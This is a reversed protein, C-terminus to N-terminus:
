LNEIINELEIFNESNMDIDYSSHEVNADGLIFDYYRKLHPENNYEENIPNLYFIKVDKHSFFANLISSGVFCAIVLANYSFRLQELFNFDEMNIVHYGNKEFVKEVNKEKTNDINIININKRVSFNKRSIFIKKPYNDQKLNLNNNIYDNIYKLRYQSNSPHFNYFLQSHSYGYISLKEDWKKELFNHPSDSNNILNQNVSIQKEYFIYSNKFIIENFNEKYIFKYKINLVNLFEILYNFYLDKSNKDRHKSSEKIDEEHAWSALLFTFNPDINKLKILKPFLEMLNHHYRVTFPYIFVNEIKMSSEDSIHNYYEYYKEISTLETVVPLLRDISTDGSVGISFGAYAEDSALKLENEYKTNINFKHSFFNYVPNKLKLIIENENHEIKEINKYTEYDSIYDSCIGSSLLLKNRDDPYNEPFLIISNKVLKEGPFAWVYGKSTITYSDEQHWFFNINDFDDRLYSLADKNKCHLWLKDKINDIFWIDVHYEPKDHGLYYKREDVLYWIDIEVEYGLNIASEIYRLSNEKDPIKGNINGRHSILHM